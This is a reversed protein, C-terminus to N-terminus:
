SRRIDTSPMSSAADFNTLARRRLAAVIILAVLLLAAVLGLISLDEGPWHFGLGEGVWFIGFSSILVGVAFKLMNEPVRALPRRLVLGALVVAVGAAAAGLIAPVLMQGVSGVAIVIFVVEIGELVVAKFTTAIAIPDWWIVAESEKQSLATTTGRYAEAENHLPIIGAARLMAKRLWSLGFLLLLLGIVLQLVSIPIASLARGVIAVLAGLTVLGGGTGILAPRWGRVTGVALVITLAEVFEVLSALFAATVHPWIHIWDIMMVENRVKSSYGKAVLVITERM